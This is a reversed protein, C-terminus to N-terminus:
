AFVPLADVAVENLRPAQEDKASLSPKALPWDIALDPDNWRVGKDAPGDYPTSCFYHFLAHQSTVVFGHAFGPPIWFQRQNEASLVVATWQGFSPSGRRIDVAVDYVEGELVSVLKGQPNPLQYHLGRLVGHSSRSLNAQVADMVIGHEAYRAQNWQEYFFGRPDGFVKPEIVLCGPLKTEIVRM